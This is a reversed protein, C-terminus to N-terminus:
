AEFETGFHSRLHDWARVMFRDITRVSVGLRGAIEAHTMGEVRDLLFADRCLPPLKALSAHLRALEMAAGTAAEPNAPAVANTDLDYAEGAYHLRIKAKRAFDVALNAAIRFLYARPQELTAATGRQLLHLDADQVVDEAEQRGVRRRAFGNLETAHAQYLGALAANVTSM